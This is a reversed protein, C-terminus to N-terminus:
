PRSALHALHAELYTELEKILDFACDRTNRAQYYASDGIPYYDRGNCTINAFADGFAKLARHAEHFEQQLTDRGTGNLHVLPLPCAPLIASGPFQPPTNSM